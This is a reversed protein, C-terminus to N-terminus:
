WPLSNGEYDFFQGSQGQTATTIVQFLGDACDEVAVTAGVGGMDTQVWGPHLALCTLHQFEKALCMNFMNLATKSMRYDYYGGSSNDAISGMLSTIQAVTGGKKMFPVVLKSVRIPGLTNVDLVEAVKAVNLDLLSDAQSGIIGSNNILIDISSLKKLASKLPGFTEEDRVDATVALVQPSEKCLQLLRSASKEDRYTGLVFDGRAVFLKTLAFGIGRGAGTILVNKM